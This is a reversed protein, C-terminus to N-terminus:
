RPHEKSWEHVAKLLKGPTTIYNELFIVCYGQCALKSVSGPSIPQGILRM